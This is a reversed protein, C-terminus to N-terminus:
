IGNKDGLIAMDIQYLNNNIFLKDILTNLMNIKNIM